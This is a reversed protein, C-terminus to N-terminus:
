CKWSEQCFWALHIRWCKVIKVIKQAIIYSPRSTSTFSEQKQFWYSTHKHIFWTIRPSEKSKLKDCFTTWPKWRWEGFNPTSVFIYKNRSIFDHSINSVPQPWHQGYCSYYFSKEQSDFSLSSGWWCITRRSRWWTLGINWPSTQLSNENLMEVLGKKLTKAYVSMGIFIPFPTERDKINRSNPSSEKFDM